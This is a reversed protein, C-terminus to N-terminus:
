RDLQSVVETYGTRFRDALWRAHHHLTAPRVSDARSWAPAIDDPPIVGPMEAMEWTRIFAAHKGPRSCAALASVAGASPSAHQPLGLTLRPLGFAMALIRAHLSRAISGRSSAILACIDWLQLSQLVTAAGGLRRALRLLTSLDDHWPAAGARYLALGLGTDGAVQALQAALRDLTADDAYEASIQVALHGQTFRRRLEAVEGRGAQQRLPDAFLEAVMVAADPVLAAAMGDAALAAQTATDRVTVATARRLETILTARPAAPWQALDTGGVALYAVPLRNGVGQRSAPKGPEAGGHGDAECRACNGPDPNGSDWIRGGMAYPWPADTGLTQVTWRAQEGPHAELYRIAADAEYPPLLMAAAQWATCTLVEGGVHLLAAGRWGPDQALRRLAIAAHGGCARLDRDALGAVALRRDPELAAVVHPLLLDGFNHRDVAGFVIWPRTCCSM